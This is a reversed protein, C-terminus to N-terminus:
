ANAEGAEPEDEAEPANAEGKEAPSEGATWKWATGFLLSFLGGSLLTNRLFKWTEPYGGTGKTLAIIWGALTRDYEPNHFPNLFWAATNTVLYFLLAGLLGGGLMGLWSFRFRFSRGLGFLALYCSYVCALSGIGAWTFVHYGRGFQYYCNLALDTVLLVGFPVALGRRGPFLAGACFMLGYVLSFNPPLLGPWRSLAAVLAFVWPLLQSLREKL